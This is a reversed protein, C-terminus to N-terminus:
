PCRRPTYFSRTHVDANREARIQDATALDPIGNPHEQEFRRSNRIRRSLEEYRPKKATELAVCTAHTQRHVAFLGYAYALTLVVLVM